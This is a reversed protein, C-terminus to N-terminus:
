TSAAVEVADVRSEELERDLLRDADLRRGAVICREDESEPVADQRREVVAGELVEEVGDGVRGVDVEVQVAARVTRRKRTSPEAGRRRASARRGRGRATVARVFAPSMGIEPMGKETSVLRAPM